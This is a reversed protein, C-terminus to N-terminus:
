LHTSTIVHRSFRNFLFTYFVFFLLDLTFSITYVIIIFNFEFGGLFFVYLVFTCM